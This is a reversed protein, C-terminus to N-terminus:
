RGATRTTAECRPCTPWCRMTPTAITPTRVGPLPAPRAQRRRQRPPHPATHARARPRHHRRLCWPQNSPARSNSQGTTPLTRPPRQCGMETLTQTRHQQQLPPLTLRWVTAKATVTPTWRRRSYRQVHPPQRATQMGTTAVWLRPMHSTQTRTLQLRATQHPWRRQPTSMSHGITMMVPRHTKCRGWTAETRVPLVSGQQVWVPPCLVTLVRAMVGTLQNRQRRNRAPWLSPPCIM